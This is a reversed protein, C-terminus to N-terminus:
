RILGPITSSFMSQFMFPLMKSVKRLVGLFDCYHLDFIVAEITMLMLAYLSGFQIELTLVSDVNSLLGFKRLSM